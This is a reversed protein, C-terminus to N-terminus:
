KNFFLMKLVPGLQFRTLLKFFFSSFCKIVRLFHVPVRLLFLYKHYMLILCCANEFLLSCLMITLLEPILTWIRTGGGVQLQLKLTEVEEYVTCPFYGQTWLFKYPPSPCTLFAWPLTLGTAVAKRVLQKRM